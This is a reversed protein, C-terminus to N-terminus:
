QSKASSLRQIASAAEKEVCKQERAKRLAPLGRKDAAGALKTIAARRDDCSKAQELDLLWSAVRDVREVIGRQETLAYARHRVEANANTAAVTTIVNDGQVGSRLAILELADIAIKPDNSGAIETLAAVVDPDAALASSVAIGDQYATLAEREHGLSLETAGLAAQARINEPRVAVEQTLLAAADKAKGQETLAKARKVVDEHSPKGGGPMAIAVIVLLVLLAAAAAVIQKQRRSLKALRARIGLKADVKAALERVPSLASRARKRARLSLPLEPVKRDVNVPIVVDNTAQSAPMLEKALLLLSDNPKRRRGGDADPPPPSAEEVAEIARDLAEIMEDATQYRADRKKALAKAVVEELAPVFTVGPARQALTQMPAYAHLRRLAEADDAFFPPHGTLLEFLVAGVSYLDARGDVKGLATEPPCYRGDGPKAGALTAVGFDTLKVRDISGDVTVNVAVNITEPKIDGHIAGAAHAAALAELVQRIIALARRQELLTGTILTRLAAGVARENAVYLEGSDLKGVDLVSVLGPQKLSRLKEGNRLREAPPTGDARVVGITVREGEGNEAEYLTRRGDTALESVILYRGARKGVLGSRQSGEWDDDIAM